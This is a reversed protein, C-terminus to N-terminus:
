IHILSLDYGKEIEVTIAASNEYSKSTIRDIGEIGKLNDEIKLVIGEEMEAPSAGPHAASISIIKTETLPFFSSKMSYMGVVGFIIIAFMTVNVAVPYKIFYSIISRM